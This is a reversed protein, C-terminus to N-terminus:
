NGAPEAARARALMEAGCEVGVVERAGLKVLARVFGGDGCGVDVVRRGAFEVHDALVDLAKRRFPESM